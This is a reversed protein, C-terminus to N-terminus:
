DKNKIKLPKLGKFQNAYEKTLQKAQEPNTIVTPTILVILETRESSRNKSGFLNGLIPIKLTFAIINPTKYLHRYILFSFNLDPKYANIM